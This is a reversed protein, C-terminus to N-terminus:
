DPNGCSKFMGILKMETQALGTKEEADIVTCTHTGADTSKLINISINSSSNDFAFCDSCTSSWHYQLPETGDDSVCTLTVSSAPRYYPPSPLTFDFPPNYSM